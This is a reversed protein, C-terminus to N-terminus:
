KVEEELRDWDVKKLLEFFREATKSYGLYISSCYPNSWKQKDKNKAIHEECEEKSLFARDAFEDCTRYFAVDFKKYNPDNEQQSFFENVSGVFENVDDSDWDSILDIDDQTLGYGYCDNKLVERISALDNRNGVIECNEGDWVLWGTGHEEEMGWVETETRIGYVHTMPNNKLTSKIFDIDERKM